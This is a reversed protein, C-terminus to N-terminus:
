PSRGRDYHIHVTSNVVSVTSVNGSRNTTIRTGPGIPMAHVPQQATTYSPPPSAADYMPTPYTNDRPMHMPDEHPTADENLAAINQRAKTTLTDWAEEQRAIAAARLGETVKPHENYNRRLVIPM